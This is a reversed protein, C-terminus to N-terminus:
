YEAAENYGSCLNECDEIPEQKEGTDDDMVVIIVNLDTDEWLFDIEFIGGEVDVVVEQEPDCKSLTELIEAVKM